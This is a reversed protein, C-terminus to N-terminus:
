ITGVIYISSVVGMRTPSPPLSDPAVDQLTPLAHAAANFLMDVKRYYKICVRIMDHLVGVYICRGHSYSPPPPPPTPRWIRYPIYPTPESPLDHRSEYQLRTHLICRIARHLYAILWMATTNQQSHLALTLTPVYRYIRKNQM